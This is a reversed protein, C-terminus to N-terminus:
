GRLAVEVDHLQRLQWAVFGRDGPPQTETIEVVAVESRQASQRLRRAGPGETQPNVVLLSADRTEIVSRLEIFAAPAPETGSRASRRYSEPTVDRLGIAAALRDFVPETAAFTAGNGLTRMAAVRDFYPALYDNCVAARGALYDSAAPLARRLTASLARVFEGVVTPSYWLHPDEGDAVGAAAAVSLHRPPRDAADLALDAWHDYDAGNSIVLDASEIRAADAPRPEFDHPDGVAGTIITRVTTCDGGLRTVLDSWQNVTVVVNLPDVPCEGRAATGRDTNCGAGLAVVSAAVALVSATSRRARPTLPIVRM